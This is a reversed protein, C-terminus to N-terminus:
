TAVMVSQMRAFLRVSQIILHPAQEREGGIIHMSTLFPTEKKYHIVHMDPGFVPENM